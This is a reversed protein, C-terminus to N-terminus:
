WRGARRGHASEDAVYVPEYSLPGELDSRGHAFVHDRQMPYNWGLFGLGRAVIWAAVPSVNPELLALAVAVSNFAASAASVWLYRMAAAPVPRQSDFAWRQNVAFNLMGGVLCGVLTAYAPSLWRLLSHFVLFDAGTALAAALVNRAVSGRGLMRERRSRARWKRLPGLPTFGETFLALWVALVWGSLVLWSAASAVHPVPVLRAVAVGTLGLGLGWSRAETDPLRGRVVRVVGLLFLALTGLGFLSWRAANAHFLLWGLVAGFEAAVVSVARRPPLGAALLVVGAAGPGLSAGAACGMALVLASAVLRGFLFREQVRRRVTGSPRGRTSDEQLESSVLPEQSQLRGGQLEAPDPPHSRSPM